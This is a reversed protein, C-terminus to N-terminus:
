DCGVYVQFLESLFLVVYDNVWFKTEIQEMQKRYEMEEIIVKNQQIHSMWAPFATKRHTFTFSFSQLHHYM